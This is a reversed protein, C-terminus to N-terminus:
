SQCIQALIVEGEYETLFFYELTSLRSKLSTATLLLADMTINVDTVEQTGTLKTKIIAPAIIDDIPSGRGRNQPNGQNHSEAIM